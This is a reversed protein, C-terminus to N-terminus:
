LEGEMLEYWVKGGTQDMWPESLWVLHKAEEETDVIKVIETTWRNFDSVEPWKNRGLLRDLWNRYIAKHVAHQYAPGDWNPNTRMVKYRM